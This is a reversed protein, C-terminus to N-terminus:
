VTPCRLWEHDRRVRGGMQQGGTRDMCSALDRSYGNRFVALNVAVQRCRSSFCPELGEPKLRIPTCRRGFIRAFRRPFCPLMLRRHFGAIAAASRWLVSQWIRKDIDVREVRTTLMAAM